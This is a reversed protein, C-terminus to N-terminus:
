PTNRKLQTVADTLDEAQGSSGHQPRLQRLARSTLTAM